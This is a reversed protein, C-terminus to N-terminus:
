QLSVPAFGVAATPWLTPLRRQHSHGRPRDAAACNIHQRRGLLTAMSLRSMAEWIVTLLGHVHERMASTVVTPRKISTYWLM